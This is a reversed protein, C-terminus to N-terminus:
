VLSLLTDGTLANMGQGDIVQATKEPNDTRFVLIGKGALMFSYLYSIAIGASSIQRVADAARGPVNDLTIAFVESANASIGAAKLVELARDPEACIIRYIGYEVTDSITSAILQIRAEKFLELVRVLTGSKNEVFVSIQKVTKM